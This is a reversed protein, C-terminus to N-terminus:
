ATRPYARWFIEPDIRENFNVELQRIRGAGAAAKFCRQMVRITEELSRARAQLHGLTQAVEEPTECWFYGDSNSGIPFGERRLCRICDRIQSGSLGMARELEPSHVACAGGRYVQTFARELITAASCLDEPLIGHRTDAGNSELRARM